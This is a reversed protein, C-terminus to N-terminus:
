LEVSAFGRKGNMSCGGCPQKVFVNELEFQKELGKVQVSSLLVMELAVSRIM